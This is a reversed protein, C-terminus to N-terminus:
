YMRTTLHTKHIFVTDGNPKLVKMYSRNLEEVILLPTMREAHWIFWNSSLHDISTKRIRVLDGVKM